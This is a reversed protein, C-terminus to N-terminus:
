LNLPYKGSLQSLLSSPNVSQPPNYKTIPSHVQSLNSQAKAQVLVDEADIASYRPRM